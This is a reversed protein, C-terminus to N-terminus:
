HSLIDKLRSCTVDSFPQWKKCVISKVNNVYAIAKLAKGIEAVQGISDCIMLAFISPETASVKIWYLERSFAMTIENIIEESCTYKEDWTLWAVFSINRGASPNWRITFCISGTEIAWRISSRVTKEAIGTLASIERVSKRPSCFLCALIAKQKKSFDGTTRTHSIVTQIKAQATEQLGSIYRRLRNIEAMQTYCGLVIYTSDTAIGVDSVIENQGLTNAFTDEDEFGDTDVVAIFPEAGILGLNAQLSFGSILGSELLGRVRKGVAQRTIKLEEALAVYSIRCNSILELVITKDVQDM